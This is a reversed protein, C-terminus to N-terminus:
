LFYFFTLLIKLIRNDIVLSISIFALDLINKQRSMLIIDLQYKLIWIHKGTNKRRAGEIM